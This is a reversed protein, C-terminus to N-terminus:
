PQFCLQSLEWKLATTYLKCKHPNEVPFYTALSEEVSEPRPDKQLLVRVQEDTPLFMGPVYYTYSEVTAILVKRETENWASVDLISKKKKADVQVLSKGFASALVNIEFAMGPYAGFLSTVDIASSPTRKVKPKASSPGPESAIGVGQVVDPTKLDSESEAFLTNLFDMAADQAATSEKKTARKVQAAAATPAAVAAQSVTPAKSVDTVFKKFHKLGQAPSSVVVMKNPPESFTMPRPLPEMLLIRLLRGVRACFTRNAEKKAEKKAADADLKLKKTPLEDEEGVRGDEIVSANICKNAFDKEGSSLNKMISPAVNMMNYVALTEWGTFALLDSPPGIVLVKNSPQPVGNEDKDVVKELANQVRTTLQASTFQRGDLFSVSESFTGPHQPQDQRVFMNYCTEEFVKMLEGIANGFAQVDDSLEISQTVLADQEDDGQKGHLLDYYRRAADSTLGKLVNATSLVKQKVIEAIMGPNKAVVRELGDEIEEPSRHRKASVNGEVVSRFADVLDGASMSALQKGTVAAAMLGKACPRAPPRDDDNDDDNVDYNCMLGKARGAGYPAAADDAQEDDDEDETDADFGLTMLDKGAPPKKVPLEEDDSQSLIYLDGAGDGAGADALDDALDDAGADAHSWPDM